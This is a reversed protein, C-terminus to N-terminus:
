LSVVIRAYQVAVSMTHQVATMLARRAAALDHLLQVCHAVRKHVPIIIGDWM